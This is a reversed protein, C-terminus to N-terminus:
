KRPRWAHYTSQKQRRIKWLGNEGMWRRLTQPHVVIHDNEGLKELAFTPKFDTYKEKVIKLTKEKLAADLQHNSKRGKLKHIVAKEGDDLLAYKLRRVQRTSIGLIKAAQGMKCECNIVKTIIDLKFQEPSTLATDAM